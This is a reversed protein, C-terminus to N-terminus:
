SNKFDYLLRMDYNNKVFEYALKRNCGNGIKTYIEDIEDKTFKTTLCENLSQLNICHFQINSKSRNYPSTKFCDRSVSSLIRAKLDIDDNCLKLNVFSNTKQILILELNSNIFSGKFANMVKQLLDDTINM